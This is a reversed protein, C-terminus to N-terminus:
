NDAWNPNRTFLMYSPRMDEVTPVVFVSHFGWDTGFEQWADLYFRRFGSPVTNILLLIKPLVIGRLKCQKRNLRDELLRIANRRFGEEVNVTPVGNCVVISGEPEDSKCIACYRVFKVAIDKLQWAPFNQSDAVFALLQAEIQARETGSLPLPKLTVIVYQQALIGSDVASQQANSVFERWGADIAGREEEGKETEVEIRETIQTVEVAYKEDQVTLIYDPPDAGEEWSIDEIGTRERLYHDFEAKAFKEDERRMKDELVLRLGISAEPM